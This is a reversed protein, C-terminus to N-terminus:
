SVIGKCIADLIGENSSQAAVFHVPIGCSRAAQATSQGICAVQMSDLRGGLISSVVNSFERAASSSFLTVVTPVVGNLLSEWQQVDVVAPTTDYCVAEEVHYGANNLTASMRPDALQGHPLCLSGIKGPAAQRALYDALENATAVGEPHVARLGAQQALATTTPGVTYCVPARESLRVGTIDAACSLAKVVNSSTIVLGDFTHLRRVLALFPLELRLTVTILPIVVATGGLHEVATQLEVSQEVSRTIVVRVGALPCEETM